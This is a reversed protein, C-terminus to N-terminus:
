YNENSVFLTVNAVLLKSQFHETTLPTNKMEGRNVTIDISAFASYAFSLILLILIKRFM